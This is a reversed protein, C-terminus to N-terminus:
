VVNVVGDRIYIDKKKFLRDYQTLGAYYVCPIGSDIAKRTIEIYLEVVPRALVVFAQEILLAEAGKTMERVIVAARADELAVQAPRLDLKEEIGFLRCLSLVDDSLELDLKNEHYYRGLLLNTRLTRNGILTADIGLYAIRRRVPLLRRSKTFDLAEDKFFYTGEEPPELTALARLFLHADDIRDAHLSFADGQSLSFSFKQLGKGRGTPAHAYDKLEVIAM